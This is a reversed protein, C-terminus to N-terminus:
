ALTATWSGRRLHIVGDPAVTARAGHVPLSGTASDAPGSEDDGTAM